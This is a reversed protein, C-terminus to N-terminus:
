FMLLICINVWCISASSYKKPFYSEVLVVLFVRQHNARLEKHDIKVNGLLGDVYGHSRIVRANNNALM